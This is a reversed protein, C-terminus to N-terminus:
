PICNELELRRFALYLTCSGPPYPTGQPPRGGPPHRYNGFRLVNVILICTLVNETCGITRVGWVGCLGVGVGSIGVGGM